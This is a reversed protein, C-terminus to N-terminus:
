GQCGILESALLAALGMPKAFYYGQAQGAGMERLLDLTAQDEVGEAVVSLDLSEAMRVIARVIARSRPSATLELIFSKDIKL